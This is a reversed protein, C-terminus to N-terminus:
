GRAMVVSVTNEMSSVSFTQSATVTTVISPHPVWTTAVSYASTPHLPTYSNATIKTPPVPQMPAYKTLGTQSEYPLSVQDGNAAGGGAAGAANGANVQNVTARGATAGNLAQAAQVYTPPTTGTLQPMNFRDSFNYVIGGAAAVSTMKLYSSTNADAM